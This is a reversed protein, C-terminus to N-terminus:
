PKYGQIQLVDYRLPLGDVSRFPEMASELAQLKGKGWLGSRRPEHTESAGISKLARLMDRVTPYYQVMPIVELGHLVLGQRQFAVRWSEASLFRNIPPNDEVDLWAQRLERLSGDVPMALRFTGAPRLVRTLEGAFPEPSHLWQLAFNSVVHHVSGTAVPLSSADAQIRRINSQRLPASMLMAHSIDLAVVEATLSAIRETMWGTGCGIDLTRGNFLAGALLQEASHRQALAERDYDAAAAGFRRAIRMHDPMAARANMHDPRHGPHLDM